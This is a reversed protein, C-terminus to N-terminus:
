NIDHALSRIFSLLQYSVLLLCVPGLFPSIMSLSQTQWKRDLDKENKWKNTTSEIKNSADTQTSLDPRKLQELKRANEQKWKGIEQTLNSITLTTQTLLTQIDNLNSHMEAQVSREMAEIKQRTGTVYLQTKELEEGLIRTVFQRSSDMRSQLTALKCTTASETPSSTCIKDFSHRARIASNLLLLAFVIRM